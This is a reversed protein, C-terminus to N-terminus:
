YVIIRFIKLAYIETGDIVKLACTAMLEEKGKVKCTITTEGNKIGTIRGNSITAVTKDSSDWIFEIEGESNDVNVNITGVREM